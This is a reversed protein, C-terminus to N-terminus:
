KKLTQYVLNDLYYTAHENDGGEELHVGREGFTFFMAHLLEHVIVSTLFATDDTHKLLIMINNSNHITRGAFDREDSENKEQTEMYWKYIKKDHKKIFEPVKKIDKIGFIFCYNIGYTEDKYKRFKM